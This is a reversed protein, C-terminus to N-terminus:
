NVAKSLVQDFKEALMTASDTTSVFYKWRNSRYAWVIKGGMKYGPTDEATLDANARGQIQAAIQECVQKAGESCLIEEFGKSNWELIKVSAKGM